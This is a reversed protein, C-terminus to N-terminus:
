EEGWMKCRCGDLFTRSTNGKSRRMSPQFRIRFDRINESISFDKKSMAGTSKVNIRFYGFNNLLVVNSNQLEDTMVEVLEALVALVDSKKMSCNRQIRDALKETDCVQPHKARGYILNTGNARKDQYTKIFIAM